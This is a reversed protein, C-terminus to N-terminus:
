GVERARKKNLADERARKKNLADERVQEAKDACLRVFKDADPGVTKLWDDLWWVSGNVVAVGGGARDIGFLEVLVIGAGICHQIEDNRLCIYAEEYAQLKRVQEKLNEITAVAHAPMDDAGSRKPKSSMKKM